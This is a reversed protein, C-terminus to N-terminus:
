REKRPSAPAKGAGQAFRQFDPLPGLAGPGHPNATLPFPITGPDHCVAGCSNTYPIPMALAPLTGAVSPNTKRPVVFLHSAIDNEFYTILNDAMTGTPVGLLFGYRGAGTKATGTMHCLRCHTSPGAMAAGIKQLMHPVVDVAHCKQCLPSNADDPDATLHHEWPSFGHSDHCDSCVTLIRDNRHMASKLLDSYQQHHSKSHVDDAWLDPPNPGKVSTYSALWDQRSIGVPAMEGAANLPEENHMVSWNGTPRDHCRGCIMMERSASLKSPNVIFRRQHGANAPNAAWAVHDSGPGHCVECGLNLEDPTGDHDLDWEGSIDDVADTLWEGTMGDQVRQFGTSHCATCNAEFNATLPPDKLTQTANNWFWDLHYDRFVKRTRDFRSEQGETQWQLLPYLGNRGPVKVLFRQKFVAGGYTLGVELTKPSAPDAPNIINQITVKFKDGDGTDRWLWARLYTTGTPNTLFTKFKDFGRTPDFDTCTIMTGGTFAAAPLFLAWGGQFQPYRSPDQLPGFQGPRTFGLRHAHQAQTAYAPHCVLCTSSGMYTANPGPRTALVIEVTTALFSATNRARRSGSGGPLHEPDAPGPVVHWFYDGTPIVPIFAVGDAGTVGQPYSDGNLRVQDEVPEDVDESSGNRVDTATFPSGDVDGAPVLYVTAGVVPAGADDTVLFSAAIPPEGGSSAGGSCGAILSVIGLMAAVVWAASAGNRM